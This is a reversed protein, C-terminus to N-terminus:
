AAAQQGNGNRLPITGAVQPPLRIRTVAVGLLALVVALAMLVGLAGGWARMQEHLWGILVPGLAALSYGIGQVFTSLRRNEDLSVAHRMILMFIVVFTGGQAIGGSISWLLWHAPALLMAALTLLWFGGMAVLMAGLSFRRALLPVGFSGLLALVQFAAAVFGAQTARFGDTEILYTPLWATVSYYLFLHAAFAIALLWAIARRVRCPAGNHLPAAQTASPIRETRRLAFVALWLLMALVALDSWSALAYRWGILAALPATLAATLMTGINLAATYIGTVLGMRHSFDQAIVMLSVINGITLTAGILLTGALLTATAGFPRLCLGLTAGGLTLAIARAVGSRAILLSALPTLVGFCLVPIGTLLGAISGSMGLDARIMALVPPVATLPSRLNLALAILACLTLVRVPIVPRGCTPHMM